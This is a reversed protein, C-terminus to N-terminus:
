GGDARWWLLVELSRLLRKGKVNVGVVRGDPGVLVSFPIGRLEFPAITPSAWGRGDFVQPWEIAQRRLWTIFSARDQVDLSVGVIVVQDGYRRRVERLTPIEALCPACWTAWFDLVVVRDQLDRMAISRGAVDVAAFADVAAQLARRDAPQAFAVGCALSCVLVGITAGILRTLRAGRGRGM